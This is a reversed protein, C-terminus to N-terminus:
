TSKADSWMKIRTETVSGNGQTALLGLQTTPTLVGFFGGAVSAGIATGAATASLDSDIAIPLLDNGVSRPPYVDVFGPGQMNDYEETVVGAVTLIDGEGDAVVASPAADAVGVLSGLGERTRDDPLAVNTNYCLIYGARLLASGGYYVKKPQVTPQGHVQVVGVSM